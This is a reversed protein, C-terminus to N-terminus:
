KSKEMRCFIVNGDQDVDYTIKHTPIPYRFLAGGEFAGGISGYLMKPTRKIETHVLMPEEKPKKGFLKNLFNM